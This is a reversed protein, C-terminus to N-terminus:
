KVTCRDTRNKEDRVEKKIGKAKGLKMQKGWRQSGGYQLEDRRVHLSLATGTIHQHTGSIRVFWPRWRRGTDGCRSGITESDCPTFIRVWVTQSMQSRKGKFKGTRSMINVWILIFRDRQRVSGGWSLPPESARVYRSSIESPHESPQEEMEKTWGSGVNVKNSSKSLLIIFWLELHVTQGREGTRVRRGNEESVRKLLIAAM